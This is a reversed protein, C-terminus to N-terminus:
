RRFKGQYNKPTLGTWRRFAHHFASVQSFGPLDSVEAIAMESNLLHKASPGQCFSVSLSKSISFLGESSSEFNRGAGIPMYDIRDSAKHRVHAV